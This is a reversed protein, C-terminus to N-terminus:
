KETDKDHNLGQTLGIIWALTTCTGVILVTTLSLM